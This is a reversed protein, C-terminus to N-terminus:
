FDVREGLLGDEAMEKLYEIANELEDPTIVPFDRQFTTRNVHDLIASVPIRSIGIVAQGSVREANVTIAPLPHEATVVSLQNKTATSM